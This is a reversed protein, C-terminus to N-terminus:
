VSKFLCASECIESRCFSAFTKFFHACNSCECVTLSFEQAAHPCWVNSLKRGKEKIKREWGPIPAETFSLLLSQHGLRVSARSPFHIHLMLLLRTPSFWPTAEKFGKSGESRHGFESWRGWDLLYLNNVVFLCGPRNRQTQTVSSQRRHMALARKQGCASIQRWLLRVFACKTNGGCSQANVKPPRNFGLPLPCRTHSLALPAYNYVVRLPFPKWTEEFSM